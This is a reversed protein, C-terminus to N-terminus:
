FFGRVFGPYYSSFMCASLQGGDALAPNLLGDPASRRSAHRTNKSPHGMGSDNRGCSTVASHPGHFLFALVSYARRAPLTPYLTM